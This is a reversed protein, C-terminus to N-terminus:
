RARGMSAPGAGRGVGDTLALFTGELTASERALEWLEIGARHAIRGVDAPAVGVVRIADRGSGREAQLGAAALTRLRDTDPSRVTVARQGQLEALPGHAVLRGRHVIVVRDVIQQMESLVHSSM